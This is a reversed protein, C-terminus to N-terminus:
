QARECALVPACAREFTALEDPRPAFLILEDFGIARAQAVLKALGDVSRWPALPPAALLSHRISAPDRGVQECHRGLTDAQRRLRDFFDTEDLAAGGFTNWVDAHRAAVGLAGEGLAAVVLPPRPRQVSAPWMVADHFRYYSGDFSEAGELAQVLAVVFEELRAVREQPSWPPTGTMARDVAYIGTGVGVAVRGGSIVDVAVAQRAVV